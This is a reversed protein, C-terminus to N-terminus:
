GGCNCACNSACSAPMYQQYKGNNYTSWPKFRQGAANYISFAANANTQPDLLQQPTWCSHKELYIQWLGYSGKGQPTCVQAEGNYAHSNGSSEAQAVAVAINLDDGTFGAAAAYQRIQDATIQVNGGCDCCTCCTGCGPNSCDDSSGFYFYAAAGAVAVAVITLGAKDM